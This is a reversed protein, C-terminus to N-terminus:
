RGMIASPRGPPALSSMSQHDVDVGAAELVHDDHCQVAQGFLETAQHAVDRHGYLV